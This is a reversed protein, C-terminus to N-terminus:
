LLSIPRFLHLIVTPEGGVIYPQSASPSPLMNSEESHYVVVVDSSPLLSLAHEASHTLRAASLAADGEWYYFKEHLRLIRALQPLTLKPLLVVPPLTPPLLVPNPVAHYPQFLLPHQYSHQQQQQQQHSLQHNTLSDLVASHNVAINALQGLVSLPGEEDTKPKNKGTGGSSDNNNEDKINITTNNNAPINCSGCFEDFRSPANSDDFTELGKLVGQNHDKNSLINLLGSPPSSSHNNSGFDIPKNNVQMMGLVEPSPTVSTEGVEPSVVAEEDNRGTMQPSSSRYSRSSTQLSDNLSPSSLSADSCVAVFDNSPFKPVNHHSTNNKEVTVSTDNSSCQITGMINNDENCSTSSSSSTESYARKKPPGLHTSMPLPYYSEQGGTGVLPPNRVLAPQQQISSSQQLQRNVLPSSENELSRKSFDLPALKSHVAANEVDIGLGESPSTSSLKNCLSLPVLYESIHTPVPPNVLGTQSNSTTAKESDLHSTYMAFLLPCRSYILQKLNNEGSNAIATFQTLSMNLTIQTYRAWPDDTRKLRHMTRVLVRGLYECQPRSDDHRYQYLLRLLLHVCHWIQPSFIVLPRKCIFSALNM